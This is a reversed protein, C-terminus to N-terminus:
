PTEQSPEPVRVGMLQMLARTGRHVRTPDGEAELQNNFHERDKAEM